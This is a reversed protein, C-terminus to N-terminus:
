LGMNICMCTTPHQKETKPEKKKARKNKAQLEDM